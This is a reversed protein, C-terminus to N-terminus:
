TTPNLWSIQPPHPTYIWGISTQPVGSNQIVVVDYSPRHGLMFWLKSISGECDVRSDKENSNKLDLLSLLGQPLAKRLRFLPTFTSLHHWSEDLALHLSFVSSYISTADDQFEAMKFHSTWGAVFSFVVCKLLKLLSVFFWGHFLPKCIPWTCRGTLNSNLMKRSNRSTIAARLTGNTRWHSIHNLWKDKASTTPSEHFPSNLQFTGFICAFLRHQHHQQHKLFKFLFLGRAIRQSREPITLHGKWPNLSRWSPYSFTVKFWTAVSNPLIKPELRAPPQALVLM